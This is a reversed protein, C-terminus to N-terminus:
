SKNAAECQSMKRQYIEEIHRFKYKMSDFQLVFERIEGWLKLSDTQNFKLFPDDQEKYHRKMFKVKAKCGTKDEIWDILIKQNEVPTECSFIRFRAGYLKKSGDALKSISPEVYGDDMLWVAMCFYPNDIYKLIKTVDKKGNPYLFKRWSRFRKMCVSLQYAEHKKNPKNCNRVRVARGTIQSLLQAKWELYDKQAVCHSVTFGGYQRGKRNIYHLCGDGICLSLVM